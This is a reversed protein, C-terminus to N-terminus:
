LPEDPIRVRLGFRLLREDEKIQDLQFTHRIWRWTRRAKELPVGPSRWVETRVHLVPLSREPEPLLLWWQIKNRVHPCFLDVVWGEQWGWRLVQASPRIVAEFRALFAALGLVQSPSLKPAGRCTSVNARWPQTLEEWLPDDPDTLYLVKELEVEIRHLLYGRTEVWNRAKSLGTELDGDYEKPNTRVVELAAVDPDLATYLPAQVGRGNLRGASAYAGTTPCQQGVPGQIDVPNRPNTWRYLFGRFGEVPRDQLQELLAELKKRM